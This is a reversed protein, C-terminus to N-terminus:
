FDILDRVHVGLADAIRILLSFGISVEGTEIKWLHTQNTGAMLALRRQTLKQRERETRIAAGLQKRRPLTDM